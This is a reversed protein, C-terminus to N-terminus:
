DRYIRMSGRFFFLTDFFDHSTWLAMLTSQFSMSVHLFQYGIARRCGGPISNSGPLQADEVSKWHRHLGFGRSLTLGGFFDFREGSSLQWRENRLLRGSITLMDSVRSNSRLWRKVLM